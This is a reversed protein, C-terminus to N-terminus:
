PTDKRITSSNPTDRWGRRALIHVLCLDSDQLFRRDLPIFGIRQYFTHARTNSALPDVLVANVGPDAFCIDLALRMMQTGYGKGLDASDGIWIDVARLNPAAKGWYHSPELHPDIILMAGIPRGGAEAMYYRYVGSQKALEEPWYADEIAQRAGADDSTAAIVHPEEDWRKLLGIDTMAAQRLM